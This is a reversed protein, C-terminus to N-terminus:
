HFRDWPSNGNFLEEILANIGIFAHRVFFLTDKDIDSIDYDNFLDIQGEFAKYLLEHAITGATTDANPAGGEYHPCLSWAPYSSPSLPHHNDSM